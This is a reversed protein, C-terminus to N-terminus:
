KSVRRVPIQVEMWKRRDPVSPDNYYMARPSSGEIQEWEHQAELWEQLKSIGARTSAVGYRGTMGISLMTVPETDVVQVMGDAGTTGMEPTRYLFSMTWSGPGDKTASDWERYDMEVPSTMAIDNRQIHQFLPWFGMNSGLDPNMKGSVEARRAAPYNKLEIAGPPTPEPYGAPLETDIRSNTPEFRFDGNSGTVVGFLDGGVRKTTWTEEAAATQECEPAPEDGM